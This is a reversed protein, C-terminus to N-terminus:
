LSGSQDTITVGGGGLSPVSRDESHQRMRILDQREKLWAAEKEALRGREREADQWGFLMLRRSPGVSLSCAPLVDM